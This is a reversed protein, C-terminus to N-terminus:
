VEQSSVCSRCDTVTLVHHKEKRCDGSNRSLVSFRTCFFCFVQLIGMWRIQKIDVGYTLDNIGHIFGGATSTPLVNLPSICIDFDCTSLM